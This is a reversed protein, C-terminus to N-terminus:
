VVNRRLFLYLPLVGLIGSYEKYINLEQASSIVNQVVDPALRTSELAFFKDDSAYLRLRSLVLTVRSKCVSSCQFYVEKARSSRFSNLYLLCLLWLVLERDSSAKLDILSLLCLQEAEAWQQQRILNAILSFGEFKKIFPCRIAM